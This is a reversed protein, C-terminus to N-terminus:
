FTRWVASASKAIPDPTEPTALRRCMERRFSSGYSMINVAAIPDKAWVSSGHLRIGTLEGPSRHDALREKNGYADNYPVSMLSSTCPANRCMARLNILLM